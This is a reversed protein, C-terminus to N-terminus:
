TREEMTTAMNDINIFFICDMAQLKELFSFLDLQFGIRLNNTQRFSTCLM